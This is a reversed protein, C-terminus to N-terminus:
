FRRRQRPDSVEDKWVFARFEENRGKCVAGVLEEATIGLDRLDGLRLIAADFNGEPTFTGIHM